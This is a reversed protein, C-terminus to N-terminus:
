QRPGTLLHFVPELTALIKSDVIGISVDYVTWATSLTVGGKM